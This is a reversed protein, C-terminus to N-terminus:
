IPGKGCVQKQYDQANEPAELVTTHVVGVKEPHPPQPQFQTNRMLHLRYPDHLQKVDGKYAETHEVFNLQGVESSCFVIIFLYVM